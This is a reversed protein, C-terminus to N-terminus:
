PLPLLVPILPLPLLPLLPIQPLLPILVLLPPFALPLPLLLLVSRGPDSYPGSSDSSSPLREAVPSTQVFFWCLPAKRPVGPFVQGCGSGFAVLSGLLAWPRGFNNSSCAVLGEGVGVRASFSM